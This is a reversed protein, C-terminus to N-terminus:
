APVWTGNRIYGHGLPCDDRVPKGEVTRMHQISPSLTLPDLSAVHWGGPDHPQFTAAGDMWGTPSNSCRHLVILGAKEVFPVPEGTLTKTIGPCGASLFRAWVKGPLLELEFDRDDMWEPSDAPKM